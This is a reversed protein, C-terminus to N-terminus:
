SRRAPTEVPAAVPAAAEPEAPKPKPAAKKAAPKAPAKTVLGRASSSPKTSGTGRGPKGRTGIPIIEADGM